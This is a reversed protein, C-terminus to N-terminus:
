YKVKGSGHRAERADAIAEVEATWAARFAESYMAFGDDGLVEALVQATQDDPPHAATWDHPVHKDSNMWSWITERAHSKAAEMLRRSDMTATARMTEREVTLAAIRREATLLDDALEKALEKTLDHAGQMAVRLNGMDEASRELAVTLDANSKEAANLRARVDDMEAEHCEAIRMVEVDRAAHAATLAAELEAVRAQLAQSSRVERALHDEADLRAVVDATLPRPYENAPTAITRNM